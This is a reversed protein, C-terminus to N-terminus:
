ACTWGANGPLALDTVVVILNGSLPDVHEYPLAAYTAHQGSFGTDGFLNQASATPPALALLVTAVRMWRRVSRYRSSRRVPVSM